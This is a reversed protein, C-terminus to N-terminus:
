EFVFYNKPTNRHPRCCRNARAGGFAHRCHMRGAVHAAPHWQMGSQEEEFEERDESWGVGDVGYNDAYARHVGKLLSYFLTITWREESPGLARCGHLSTAGHYIVAEGAALHIPALEHPLMRKAESSLPRIQQGVGSVSVAIRVCGKDLAGVANGSAALRKGTPPM